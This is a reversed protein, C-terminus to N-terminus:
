VTGRENSLHAVRHDSAGLCGARYDNNYPHLPAAFLRTAWLQFAPSYVSLGAIVPPLGMLANLMAIAAGRGPFRYVALVGGVVFGIMTAIAVATLTVRLSLAVIETLQPYLAVYVTAAMAVSGLVAEKGRMQNLM